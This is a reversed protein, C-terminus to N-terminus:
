LTRLRDVKKKINRNFKGNKSRKLNNNNHKIIKSVEHWNM